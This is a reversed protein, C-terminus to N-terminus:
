TNILPVLKCVYKFSFIANGTNAYKLIDRNLGQPISTACVVGSVAKYYNSIQSLLYNSSFYGNLSQKKSFNRMKLYCTVIEQTKCKLKECKNWHCIYGCGQIVVALLM